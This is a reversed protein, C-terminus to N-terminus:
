IWRGSNDFDGRAAAAIAEETSMESLSKTAQPNAAATNATPVTSAGQSIKQKFLFSNGEDQAYSSIVDSISEGNQGTWSGDDNRKLLSTIDNAAMRAAKEGSFELAALSERVATDRSLATNQEMLKAMAEEQQKLRAELAETARGQEELHKIESDQQAKKLEEAQKIAEDRQSYASDLNGKIKALREEVAKEVLADINPTEAPTDVQAETNLEESM